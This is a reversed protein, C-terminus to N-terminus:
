SVRVGLRPGGRGGIRQHEEAAGAIEGALLDIRSQERHDLVAMEIHRNDRDRSLGQTCVAETLVNLLTKRLRAGTLAREGLVGPPLAEASM